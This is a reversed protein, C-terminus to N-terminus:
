LRARLMADPGVMSLQELKEDEATSIGTGTKIWVRYDPQNIYVPTAESGRIVPNLHNGWNRFAIRSKCM